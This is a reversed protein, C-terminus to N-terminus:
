LQKRIVLKIIIEEAALVLATMFDDDDPVIAHEDLANGMQSYGFWGNLDIATNNM